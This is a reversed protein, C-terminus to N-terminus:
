LPTPNFILSNSLGGFLNVSQTWDVSAFYVTSGLIAVVCVAIFLFSSAYTGMGALGFRVLQLITLLSMLAFLFMFVAWTALFYYLPIM